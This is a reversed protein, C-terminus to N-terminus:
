CTTRLEILAVGVPLWVDVEADDLDVDVLPSVALRVDIMEVDSVDAVDEDLVSLKDVVCPEAGVDFAKTDEDSLAPAVGTATL